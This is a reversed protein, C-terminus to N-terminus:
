DPKYIVELTNLGKLIKKIKKDVGTKKLFQYYAFATVSFGNPVNIGRKTLKQYLEGLSANKGGVKGVDKITLQNFWLINKM